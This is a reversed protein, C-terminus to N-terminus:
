KRHCATQFLVYCVTKDFGTLSIVLKICRKRFYQMVSPTVSLYGIQPLQNATVINQQLDSSIGLGTVLYAKRQGDVWVEIEVGLRNIHPRPILAIM